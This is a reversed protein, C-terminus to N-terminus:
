CIVDMYRLDHDDYALALEDNLNARDGIITVKNMSWGHQQLLHCLREMNEQVTAKDATRGSWLAYEVPLNGDATVDLGTKFKRKGMPTNHAFGFDAYQSDTYQGQVVFATLDYFILSLDVKARM